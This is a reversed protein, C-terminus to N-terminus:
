ADVQELPSSPVSDSRLPHQGSRLLPKRMRARGKQRVPAWLARGAGAVAEAPADARGHDAPGDGPGGPFTALALGRDGIGGTEPLRVIDAGTECGFSPLLRAAGATLDSRAAKALALAGATGVRSEGIM